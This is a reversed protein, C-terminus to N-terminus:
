VAKGKAVQRGVIKRAARNGLGDYHTALDSLLIDSEAGRMTLALTRMKAARGRWHEPDNIDRPVM